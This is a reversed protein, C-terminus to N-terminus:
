RLKIKQGSVLAQPDIDPNLEQIKAVPIGTKAGITSLSDGPKIVYTRKPLAASSTTTKTPGGRTAPKSGGGSGGGGGGSSFVIFIFAIAGVVLATPALM